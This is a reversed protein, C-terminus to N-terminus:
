KLKGAKTLETRLFLKLRSVYENRDGSGESLYRRFSHEFDPLARVGPDYLWVLNEPIGAVSEAIESDSLDRVFPNIEITESCETQLVGQYGYVKLHVVAFFRYSKRRLLKLLHILDAQNRPGGLLCDNFIAGSHFGCVVRSFCTKQACRSASLAHHEAFSGIRQEAPLFDFNLACESGSRIVNIGLGELVRVLLGGEHRACRYSYSQKNPPKWFRVCRIGQGYAFMM